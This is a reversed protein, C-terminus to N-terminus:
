GPPWALTRGGLLHLHIHFVSQGAGKMCNMVVRYGSQDVGEQKAVTRAALFLRGVEDVEAEGVDNITAIHRRPIILVHIPAKPNTDRFALVNHDKYVIDSNIDGSAIKCFICDPSTV